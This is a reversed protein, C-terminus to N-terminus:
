LGIENGRTKRLAKPVFTKDELFDFRKINGKSSVFCNIYYKQVGTQRSSDRYMNVEYYLRYGGSEKDGHSSLDDVAFAQMLEGHEDQLEKDCILMADGIHNVSRQSGSALDLSGSALLFTVISASILLVLLVVLGGVQILSSYASLKKFFSVKEPKTEESVPEEDLAM